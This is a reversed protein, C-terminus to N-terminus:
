SGNEQVSLCWGELVDELLRWQTVDPHINSFIDVYEDTTVLSMKQNQLM